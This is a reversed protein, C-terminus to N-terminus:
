VDEGFYDGTQVEIVILIEDTPNSLRHKAGVPVLVLRSSGIGLPM